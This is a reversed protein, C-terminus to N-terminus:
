ASWSLATAVLSSASSSCSSGPKTVGDPAAGVTVAENTTSYRSAGRDRTAVRTAQRGAKPCSRPHRPAPALFDPPKRAPVHRASAVTM